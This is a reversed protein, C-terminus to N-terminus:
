YKSELLTMRNKKIKIIYLNDYEEEAIPKIKKATLGEIISPINGSHGVMLINKNKIAKIVTVISDVANNRYIMLSRNVVTALPQATEQTRQFTTAFVLDIKKDVLKNKLTEARAHGDPSLVSYPSKDLKEAHRVIYCYHTRGCSLVFLSILLMYLSKM